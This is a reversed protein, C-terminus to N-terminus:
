DDLRVLVGFDPDNLGRNVVWLIKWIARCHQLKFQSLMKVCFKRLFEKCVQHANGMM